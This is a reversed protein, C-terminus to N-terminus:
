HARTTAAPSEFAALAITMPIPEEGSKALRAEARKLEARAFEFLDDLGGVIRDWGLQDVVGPTWTFHRDSRADMTGAEIADRVHKDLTEFIKASAIDRASDPLSTWTTGDLLPRAARYFREKGGRRREGVKTDVLVLWDFEKLTRFARYVKDKTIEGGGFEECFQGASMARTSLEDLIVIRLSDIMAKALRISFPYNSSSPTYPNALQGLPRGPNFQNSPSEFVALTATLPIGQEGSAALRCDAQRLEEMILGFLNDARDM